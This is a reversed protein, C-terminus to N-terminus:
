KKKDFQFFYSTQKELLIEFSKNDNITKYLFIWKILHKESFFKFKCNVCTMKLIIKCKWLKM